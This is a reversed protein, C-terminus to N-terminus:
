QGKALKKYEPKSIDGKNLFEKLVSSPAQTGPIPYGHWGGVNDPQFEYVKGSHMGYRQKGSLISSNLVDSATKDNLDMETGWGGKMHKLTPSYKLLQDNSKLGKEFLRKQQKYVHPAYLLDQTTHAGRNLRDLIQAMEEDTLESHHKFTEMPPMSNRIAKEKIWIAEASNPDNPVPIFVGIAAAVDGAIRPAVEAVGAIARRFWNRSILKGATNVAYESGVEETTTVGIKTTGTAITTSIKGELGDVDINEIPNNSGFQFPTLEPYNASIPDTSLFRGVRPDYIRMGYDQESSPIPDGSSDLRIENDNEKGNFGYTYYSVSFLFANRL